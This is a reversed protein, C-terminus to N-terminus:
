ASKEAKAKANEAPAAPATPTSAAAPNSADASETAAAPNSAKVPETAAAPNSAKAPKLPAAPKSPKAPKPAKLAKPAKSAKPAKMAKAPKSAKPAKIATAQKKAQGPPATAHKKAQGPPLAADQKAKEHPGARHGHKRPHTAAAHRPPTATAGPAALTPQTAAAPHTTPTSRYTAAGGTPGVPAPAPATAPTRDRSSKVEVAATGGGVLAAVVLVKTAVAGAGAGAAVASGGAAGGIVTAKLGVTPAVPLVLALERRQRRVESRFERCGECESLHRRVENRRLSGGTLNALQERIEACPTDRATRSAILSSRAQFVLAKVKEKRCRLVDAIEDHPMDGLESLVLAARQDEPLRWVDGLLERLDQRREVEAALHETPPEELEATSQRARTRLTTLCRNRAITYLWPRLVVDKDSGVLGRYAALFTHQVADEAEEASGLMHRCFGLIGRHHRDFLAEFASESGGRLLEVLREDSALRLLRAPLLRRPHGRADHLETLASL